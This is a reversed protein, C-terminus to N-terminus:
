RVALGENCGLHSGSTLMRCFHLSLSGIFYVYAARSVIICDAVLCLKGTGEKHESEILCRVTKLLSAWTHEKLLCSRIQQTKSEEIGGALRIVACGTM